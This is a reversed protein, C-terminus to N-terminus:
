QPIQATTSTEELLISKIDEKNPKGFKIDIWKSGTEFTKLETIYQLQDFTAFVIKFSKFLNNYEEFTEYEPLKISISYEDEKPLINDIIQKLNQMENVLKNKLDNLTRYENEQVTVTNSVRNFFKLSRIKSTLKEFIKADILEDIAENFAILGQVVTDNAIGRAKNDIIQISIGELKPICLNLLNQYDRLRM